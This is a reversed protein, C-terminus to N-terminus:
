SFVWERSIFLHGVMELQAQSIEIEILYGSDHIKKGKSIQTTTMLQSIYSPKEIQTQLNKPKKFDSNLNIEMNLIPKSFNM